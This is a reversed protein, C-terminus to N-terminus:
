LLRLFQSMDEKVQLKPDTLIDLYVSFMKYQHGLLDTTKRHPCYRSKEWWESSFNEIIDM